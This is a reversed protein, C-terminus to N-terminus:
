VPGVKKPRDMQAAQDGQEWGVQVIMTCVCLHKGILLCLSMQFKELFDDSKTFGIIWAGKFADTIKADMVHYTILSCGRAKYLIASPVIWYISIYWSSVIISHELEFTKVWQSTKLNSLDLNSKHQMRLGSIHAIQPAMLCCPCVKVLNFQGFGMQLVHLGLWFHPHSFVSRLVLLIIALQSWEFM